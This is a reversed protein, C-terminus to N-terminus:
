TPMTWATAGSAASLFPDGTTSSRDVPSALAARRSCWRMEGLGRIETVRAPIKEGSGALVLDLASGIAIGDLRDERVTFSFWREGAAELTLVPQGPLVAEGPEAVLIGVTGDVATHRM